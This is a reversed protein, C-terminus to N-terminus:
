QAAREIAREQIRWIAGILALTHLISAIVAPAQDAVIFAIPREVGDAYMGTLMASVATVASAIMISQQPLLCFFAFLGAQRSLILYYLALTSSIFLVFPLARSGMLGALDSLTSTGGAVPDVWLVTAWVYHLALGYLVILPHKGLWHTM